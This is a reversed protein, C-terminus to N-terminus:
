PSIPLPFLVIASFLKFLTHKTRLSHVYKKNLANENKLNLIKCSYTLDKSAQFLKSSNEANSNRSCVLIVQVFNMTWCNFNWKYFKFHPGCNLTAIIIAVVSARLRSYCIYIIISRVIWRDAILALRFCLLLQLFLFLLWSGLALCVSNRLFVLLASLRFSHISFHLNLKYSCYVALRWMFLGCCNCHFFSSFFGVTSFYCILFLFLYCRIFLCCCACCRCTALYAAGPRKGNSTTAMGTVTADAAVVSRRPLAQLQLLLERECLLLQNFGLALHCSWVCLWRASPPNAAGAGLCGLCALRVPTMHTLRICSSILAAARVANRVVEHSAHTNNDICIQARPPQPQLRASRVHLLKSLQHMDAAASALWVPWNPACLVCALVPPAIYFSVDFLLHHLM